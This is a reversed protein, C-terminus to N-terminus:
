LRVSWGFAPHEQAARSKDARGKKKKKKLRVFVYHIRRAHDTRQLCCGPLCVVSNNKQIHGGVVGM